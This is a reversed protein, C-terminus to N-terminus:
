PHCLRGTKEQQLPQDQSTEAQEKTVPTASAALRQVASSWEMGEEETDGNEGEGDKEEDEEKSEEPSGEDAM